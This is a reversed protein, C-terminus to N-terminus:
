LLGNMPYALSLLVSILCGPSKPASVTPGIRGGTSHTLFPIARCLSRLIFGQVSEAM